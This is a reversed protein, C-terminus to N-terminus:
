TKSGPDNQLDAKDTPTFLYNSGTEPVKADQRICRWPEKRETPGSVEYESSEM